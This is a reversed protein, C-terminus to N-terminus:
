AIVLAGALPKLGDIKDLVFAKYTRVDAKIGSAPITCQTIGKEFKVSQSKTIAVFKDGEYAAVFIEGEVPEASANM